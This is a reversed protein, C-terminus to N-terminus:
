RGERWATYKAWPCDPKHNFDMPTPEDSDGRVQYADCEVCFFKGEKQDDGFAFARGIDELAIQARSLKAQILDRAEYVRLMGDHARRCLENQNAEARELDAFLSVVAEPTAAKLFHYMSQADRYAGEALRKLEARDTTM